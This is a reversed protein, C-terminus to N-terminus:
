ALRVIYNFAINKVTNEANGTANVTITHGHPGIIVSHAHAGIGITHNHAGIYVNHAHGGASSTTGTGLAANYGASVGNGAGTNGVPINHSHAGASNTTKTGYDFSSTTKTGYDFSSTTKTGLDTSSASASHTHSKIGDQEQSLVARGSAPKGKIMWGRMDPVIGSPYAVALKPYKVKDFSQGQMIAYGDPPTDSPWPLPVGAPVEAGLETWETWPGNGSFNGSVARVFKRIPNWTTYEQQCAGWAGMKVSLYGAQQIPYNKETTADRNASQYYDGHHEPRGLTNLDVTLATYKAQQASGQVQEQLQQLEQSASELQQELETAKESAETAKQMTIQVAKPTAAMNEANSDTESSLQVIGKSSTTADSVTSGGEIMGKLQKIAKPTAAMTESDSDTESSLQVIGKSSTTADSVTSGGEIMGKLQKIAKPTAAMTESDSDTESSLQVFGKQTTSADRHNGGTEHEKIAQDLAAKTVMVVSQDLKINLASINSLLIVMRFVQERGSGEELRPKYGEAVNGVAIMAGEDDFLGIERVWFGGQDAPIVLEATVFSENEADQTISSINGEWVKKVLQQQEESPEVEQGNGDGVQMKALTVKKGGPKLAEALKRRGETTIITKYKQTM